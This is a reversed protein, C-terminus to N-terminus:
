CQNESCIEVRTIFRKVNYCLIRTAPRIAILTILLISVPKFDFNPSEQLCNFKMLVYVNECNGLVEVVYLKVEKLFKESLPPFKKTTKNINVPFINWLERARTVLFRERIM